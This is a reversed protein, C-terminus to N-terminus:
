RARASTTPGSWSATPSSSTAPDGRGRAPIRTPSWPSEAKPSTERSSASSRTAPASRCPPSPSSWPSATSRAPSRGAAAYVYCLDAHGDGRRSPTGVAIFVADAERVADRLDLRSILGAKARRQERGDRRPGARLDTDRGAAAGDIKAADKDVCTVQPRFRRLVRRVGARCLGDRDNRRAHHAGLRKM